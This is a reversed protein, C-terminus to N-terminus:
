SFTSKCIKTIWKVNRVKMIHLEKRVDEVPAGKRLWSLSKYAESERGKQLLFYPTEPMFAPFIVLFILPSIMSVLILVSYSVYPGVLYEVLFGSCLFFALMSGLAGRVEDQFFLNILKCKLHYM